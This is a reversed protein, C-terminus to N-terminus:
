AVQGGTATTGATAGPLNTAGLNLVSNTTVVYEKGTASGSFTMAEMRAAALRELGLYAISFTPSGSITVTLGATELQGQDSVYAHYAAGGSITYAAEAAVMAMHLCRIQSDTCAGFNLNRFLVRAKADIQLGRGGSGSSVIKFDRLDWVGPTQNAAIAVGSAPQILVNAPTSNNGKISITGQGVFSKLTLNEAYTGDAVNIIVSYSGLDLLTAVNIAKQITLFAGGSTNALGTNSDSGNTRVYYNRDATLKERTVPGNFLVEVKGGSLDSAISTSSHDLLVIYLSQNTPDRYVDNVHYATMTAWNGRWEGFASTSALELIDEILTELDADSGVPIQVCRAIKEEVQQILVTLYDLSNEVTQARYPGGNALDTLQTQPFDSVITLKQSPTLPSGSLPYTITWNTDDETEGVGQVSYDADVVLDTDIGDETLVARLHTKDTLGFRRAFVTASNNGTYQSRTGEEEIM